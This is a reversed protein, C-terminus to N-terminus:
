DELPIGLRKFTESERIVQSKFTLRSARVVSILDATAREFDDNIIVYDFKGAHVMEAGAGALRRAIVEDSDTGRKNLRVRLTDVSPPLIFVGLVDPYLKEVQLAGQWDIELLVDHGLNLQEQIWAKSTGYYNGHVYAWELFANEAQMKEFEEITVFHYERGDVEGPRPQRTTHSISLHVTPDAKLLAAVLSSKGAGSPATVLFLRGAKQELM